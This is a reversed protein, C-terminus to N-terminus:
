FPQTSILEEQYYKRENDIQQDIFAMFEKIAEKIDDMDTDSGSEPVNDIEKQVHKMLNAAKKLQDQAKKSNKLNKNESRGLTRMLANIIENRM